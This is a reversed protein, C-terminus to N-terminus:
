TTHGTHQLSHSSVPCSHRTQWAARGESGVSPPPWPQPPRPTVRSTEGGALLVVPGVPGVAGEWVGTLVSDQGRGGQLFRHSLSLSVQSLQPCDPGGRVVREWM